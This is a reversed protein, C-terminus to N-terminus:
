KEMVYLGAANRLPPNAASGMAPPLVMAGAACAPLWASWDGWRPLLRRPRGEKFTWYAANKNGPPNIIGAIHGSSALVFRV